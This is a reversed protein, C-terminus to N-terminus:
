PQPRKCALRNRAVMAIGPAIRSERVTERAM